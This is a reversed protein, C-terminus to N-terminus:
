PFKPKLINMDWLYVMGNVLSVLTRGNAAYALSKVWRNNVVFNHVIKKNSVDYIYIGKTTSGIALLKGDPSFVVSAIQSPNRRLFLNRKGTAVDWLYINPSYAASAITQGDPSFTLDSIRMGHKQIVSKKEGTVVDWLHIAMDYSGSAVTRGDPSFAISLVHQQHGILTHKLEGTNANWIRVTNDNSGSALTNGDPSFSVCNVQDQHQELKNIENGTNVDFISITDFNAGAFTNGDPSYAIYTPSRHNPRRITKLLKGMTTDFLYITSGGGPCAISKGDPSVAMCKYNGYFDTITHIVEGTFINWICVTGGDSSALTRLDPSFSISQGGRYGKLTRLHQYTNVNWLQISGNVCSAALLGSDTSFAIHNFGGVRGEAKLIQIQQMTDIDWLRVANDSASGTALIDGDNSFAVSRVESQNGQLDQIHEGTISDWLAIMGSDEAAAIMFGNPNFALSNINSADGQPKQFSQKEKGTKADLVRVIRHTTALAITDGITNFIISGIRISSTLERTLKGEDTNWLNITADNEYSVLTNQQPHYDFHTTGVDNKTLLHIPQWTTTDYIWTGVSSAVALQMGDPSYQVHRVAGNGFRAIAGKPLGFTSPTPEQAKSGLVLFLLIATITTLRRRTM